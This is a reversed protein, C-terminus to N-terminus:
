VQYVNNNLNLIKSAWVLSLIKYIEVSHQILLDNIIFYESFIDLENLNEDHNQAFLQHDFRSLFPTTALDGIMENAPYFALAHHGSMQSKLVNTNNDRGVTLFLCRTLSASVWQNQSLFFRNRRAAWATRHTIISNNVFFRYHYQFRAYQRVIRIDYTWYRILNYHLPWTSKHKLKRLQRRKFKTGKFRYKKFKVSSRFIKRRQIDNFLKLDMRDFTIDTLCSRRRVM